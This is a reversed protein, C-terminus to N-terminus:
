PRAKRANAAGSRRQDHAVLWFRAWKYFYYQVTSYPPFDKPLARWQCGSAAIYLVANMIVRLSIERPRGRRCRLPMLPEILKWEADTMDSAYRLGDRRYQERTTETWCM